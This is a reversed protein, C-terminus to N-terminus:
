LWYLTPSNYRKRRKLSWNRSRGTGHRERGRVRETSERWSQETSSSWSVSCHSQSFTTLLLFYRAEIMKGIQRCHKEQEESLVERKKREGEEKVERVEQRHSAERQEVDKQGEERVRQVEERGREREEKRVREVEEEHTRELAEIQDAFAQREGELLFRVVLMYIIIM